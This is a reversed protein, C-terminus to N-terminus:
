NKLQINVIEGEASHTFIKTIKIAEDEKLYLDDKHEPVFVKIGYWANIAHTPWGFYTIGKPVKTYKEVYAYKLIVNATTFWRNGLKKM